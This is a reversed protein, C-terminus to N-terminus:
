TENRDLALDLRPDILLRPVHGELIGILAEVHVHHLRQLRFMASIPSLREFFPGFCM